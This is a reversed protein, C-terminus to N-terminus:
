PESRAESAIPHGADKWARIGGDLAIAGRFGM